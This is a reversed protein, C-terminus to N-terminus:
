AVTPNGLLAQAKLLTDRSAAIPALLYSASKKKQERLLEKPGAAGGCWGTSLPHSNCCDGILQLPSPVLPLRECPHRPLLRRCPSGALCGPRPRPARRPPRHLETADTATSLFGASPLLIGDGQASSTAGGDGSCAAAAARRALPHRANPREHSPRTRFRSVLQWEYHAERNTPRWAQDPLTQNRMRGCNVHESMSSPEWAEEVGEGQWCFCAADCSNSRLPTWGPAWGVRQYAIICGPFEPRRWKGWTPLHLPLIIRAVM